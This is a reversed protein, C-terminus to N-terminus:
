KTQLVKKAILQEEDEEPAVEEQKGPQTQNGLQSGLSGQRQQNKSSIALQNNPKDM